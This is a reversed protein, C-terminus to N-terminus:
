TQLMPKFSQDSPNTQLIPRFSQRNSRSGTQRRHQASRNGTKAFNGRLGMEGSPARPGLDIDDRNVVRDGLPAIM